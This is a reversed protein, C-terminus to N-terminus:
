PMGCYMATPIGNRYIRPNTGCNQHCAFSFLCFTTKGGCTHSKLSLINYITNKDNQIQSSNKKTFSIFMLDLSIQFPFPFSVPHGMFLKVIIKGM